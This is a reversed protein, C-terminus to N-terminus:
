KNTTKKDPVPDYGGRFLPNCRLIRLLSLLTGKVFGFRGIAEKAYNSCTPEFRCVPPKNPSIRKQYFEIMKTGLRVM